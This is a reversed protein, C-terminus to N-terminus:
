HSKTADEMQNMEFISEQLDMVFRYRDHESGANLTILVTGDVKRSIQIGHSFVPTHFLTVELGQLPFSHKQTYIASNNKSPKSTQKTVVLLDNFLFLDKQHSGPTPEKRSNINTVEYLRCLCVLRRHPQALNSLPAKGLFYTFHNIM